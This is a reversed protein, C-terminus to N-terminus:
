YTGAGIQAFPVGANAFGFLLLVFQIPTGWWHEFRSLTNPRNEERPDFLGLDRPSHPMFPVIPVLALAPHFAEVYLALWSLGGCIWIYPWFQRVHLRQMWFALGIAAAM